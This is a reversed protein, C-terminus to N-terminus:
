QFKITWDHGTSVEGPRVEFNTLRPDDTMILNIPPADKKMGLLGMRSWNINLSLERDWGYAALKWTKGIRRLKWAEVIDWRIGKGLKQVFLEDEVPLDTRTYATAEGKGARLILPTHKGLKALEGESKGLHELDTENELSFRCDDAAMRQVTAIDGKSFAQTLRDITAEVAIRDTDSTGSADAPLGSIGMVIVGGAEITIDYRGPYLDGITYDGNPEIDGEHYNSLGEPKPDGIRCAGISFSQGNIGRAYAAPPTGELTIKGEIIGRKVLTIHGIKYESVSKVEVITSYDEFDDRSFTVKYTGPTVGTIEFAGNCDIWPDILGDGDIGISTQDDPPDVTGTIWASPQLIIEGVDVVGGGMKINRITRGVLRLGWGYIRLDYTGAFVKTFRFEGTKPDLDVDRVYRAPFTGRESTWLDIQLDPDAPKVVGRIEGGLASAGTLCVLLLCLYILRRM